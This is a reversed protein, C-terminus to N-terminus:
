QLIKEQIDHVYMRFLSKLKLAFDDLESHGYESSISLKQSQMMSIGSTAAFTSGYKLAM